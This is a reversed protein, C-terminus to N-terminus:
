NGFGGGGGRSAKMKKKKKEDAKKAAMTQMPANPDGQADIDMGQITFSFSFTVYATQM